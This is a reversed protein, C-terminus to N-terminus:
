NVLKYRKYLIKQKGYFLGAVAVSKLGLYNSLHWINFRYVKNTHLDLINKWQNNIEDFIACDKRCFRGKCLSGGKSPAIKYKLEFDTYTTKFWFQEKFDYIEIEKSEIKKVQVRKRIKRGIWEETLHKGKEYDKYHMLDSNNKTRGSLKDSYRKYKKENVNFGCADELSYFVELTKTNILKVYARNIKYRNIWKETLHKGKNYDDLNMWDTKPYEHYLKGARIGHKRFLTMGSKLIELTETNIVKKSNKDGAKKNTKRKRVHGSTGKGGDDLNVLNGLGKNKRGLESILFVELEWADEVSLGEAVVDVIIGHKKYTNEWWENRKQTVYPREPNGMGVYFISLDSEKRHLYVVKNAEM